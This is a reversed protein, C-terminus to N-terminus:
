PQMGSMAASLRRSLKEQEALRAGLQGSAWLVGDIQQVIAHQEELPPLPFPLAEFSDSPITAISTSAVAIRTFQLTYLLHQFYAQTFGVHVHAHARFRMLHDQFFCDSGRSRFVASRGVLSMSNGKNILIDGDRLTCRVLDQDPVNIEMLDRWDIWGDLVNAVRLYPRMNQGQLSGPHKRIGVQTDGAEGVRVRRWHAPFHDAPGRRPRFISFLLSRRTAEIARQTELFSERCARAAQLATSLRRQAELPPLTFEEEALTKWNITPSLSGVSIAIAREMFPDSQMFFPLFEPFVADPKARLVMAHASCIGEFDAVALKRQYARRKGFIIDGPKFRLKTSEVDDPTGWRRVSLSEPDLHELGVYRDVGAAKPDDVRDNVCQAIEGFKM